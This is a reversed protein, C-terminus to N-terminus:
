GPWLARMVRQAAYSGSAKNTVYVHTQMHATSPGYGSFVVVMPLRSLKLYGWPLWRPVDLSRRLRVLRPLAAVAIEPMAQACTPGSMAAPWAHACAVKAFETINMCAMRTSSGSRRGRRGGRGCMGRGAGNCRRKHLPQSASVPCVVVQVKFHVRVFAGGVSSGRHRGVHLVAGM